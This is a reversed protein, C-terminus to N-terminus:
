PVVTLTLDNGDGGEYSAQFNNGNLNVIAGDPLNSFTGAIPTAATDNIIVFTTGLSVTGPRIQLRIRAGPSVIVGNTTIQDATASQPDLQIILNGGSAFLLESQILLQGIPGRATGPSLQGSRGSGTGVSVLGTVIGNGGLVGGTVIVPGEGTASGDSADLVLTGARVTTNGSYTNNGQLTLDGDGIKSLGGGAGGDEIVGSFTTTLDNSGVTLVNPGLDVSGDGEISGVTVGPPSHSYIALRAGEFLEVRGNGGSSHGFFGIFGGANLGSTAILTAQAATSNGNFQIESGFAGSVKAGESTLTASEASANHSFSVVGGMVLDSNAGGEATITSAGANSDDQFLLFGAQGGAGQVGTTILVANGATSTDTFITNGGIAFSDGGPTIIKTKGASAAGAFTLIGPSSGFPGQAETLTPVVSSQNDIGTGGITLVSGPQATITYANAEPTFVISGILTEASVDVSSKNTLSFTAVDSLGNPVTMPTWNAATNWGTTTPNLDWTASEAEALRLSLSFFWILCLVRARRSCLAILM